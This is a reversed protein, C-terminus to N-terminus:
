TSRMSQGQSAIAVDECHAAVAVPLAAPGYDLVLVVEPTLDDVLDADILFRRLVFDHVNNTAHIVPQVQTRLGFRIKAQISGGKSM